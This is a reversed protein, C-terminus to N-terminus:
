PYLPLVQGAKISSPEEVLALAMADWGFIDVGFGCGGCTEYHPCAERWGGSIESCVLDKALFTRQCHLCWLIANPKDRCIRSTFSRPTNPFRKVDRKKKM